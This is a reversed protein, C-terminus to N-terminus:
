KMIVVKKTVVGEKSAISFFYVGATLRETNYVHKSTEYGNSLQFADVMAGQMDFVKVLIDGEMHTMSLTMNGDNPNPYIDVSCHTSIEPVDHSSCHIWKSKTFSDGCIENGSGTSVTTALLQVSDLEYTYIYVQCRDYNDGYKILDWKNFPQGNVDRLEWSTEHTGDADVWYEEVTYQFESGGVVWAHGEVRPFSPSYDIQINVTVTSDCDHETFFHRTYTGSENITMVQNNQGVWVYENCATTDITKTKSYNVTLDLIYTSDCDFGQGGTHSFTKVIHHNTSTYNSGPIVPWEYDDCVTVTDTQYFEQHFKLDLTYLYDCEGAPGPIIITDLANQYYDRNAIDWHYFPTEDHPVCIYKNPTYNQPTQYQGVSLQLQYVQLCGHNDISDYYAVDGDQSYENGDFWTLTQGVCISRPDVITPNEPYVTLNLWVISDCGHITHLNESYTGSTNYYHGHFNYSTGPCIFENDTHASQYSPYHHLHLTIVKECGQATTTVYDYDGEESYSTGYFNYSDGPCIYQDVNEYEPNNVTVTTQVDLATYGDSVHCTYTTTQTPHAVPNAINPSSLGATPTWSYTYNNVNGGVARANLQSTEGQCISCPTASATATMNSGSVMVSVQDTSSCGGQPHTVTLTFTTSETLGVTTTNQANPNTVKNAPEWHYNFTGTGGSGHLQATGGYQVTQDNGANAVPVAYVEVNQQKQSTCEGGTNVTLTVEYNGAQAYTHSVSAGTGTQGDGFNWQCTANQNAPNTTSTSTFQTPDGKCVKTYTFNASASPFVTVETSASNTQTGVHITCIYEGAMNMTCNPRTVTQGTATWGGPGSWSYTAGNQANGTLTITQGVCYPGGNSVLPPLIGCDTEGPGSNPVKRFTIDTATSQNWKTIVLIYYKGVQASSPINCYETAASTSGCDVISQLQNPCPAIPDNFPGWCCYDIDVNASNRIEIRFNGAVGIKMHYWYPRRATYSSLCGYNPGPECSGSPNADVHFSIVETTCFPDSTACTQNGDRNTPNEILMQKFLLVFLDQPLREKWTSFMEGQKEKDKYLYANFETETKEKIGNFYSQFQNDPLNESSSILVSMYDENVTYNLNSDNAIASLLCYRYDPNVISEVELEISHNKVSQGYQKMPMALLILGIALAKFFLNKM